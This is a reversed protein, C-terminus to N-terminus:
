LRRHLDKHHRVSVVSQVSVRDNHIISYLIGVIGMLSGGARGM